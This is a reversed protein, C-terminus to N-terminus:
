KADAFYVRIHISDTKFSEFHDEITQLIYSKNYQPKQYYFVINDKAFNQFLM